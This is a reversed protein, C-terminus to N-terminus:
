QERGYVVVSVNAASSRVYLRDTAKMIIGERMLPIGGAAIPFDYEIYDTAAAAANTTFAIRVTASGSRCCCNLSIFAIKGTPCTYVLTDTAAALDFAGLKGDAM